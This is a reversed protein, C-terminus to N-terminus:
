ERGRGEFKWIDAAKRALERSRKEIVAPTWEDYQEALTRAMLVASDKFARKKAAFNRNFNTGTRNEGKSIVLLNGTRYVWDEGDVDSDKFGTWDEWHVESKPLIHEVTCRSDRLADSGPQSRANIGFLYRLARKDRFEIEAMRQIFNKNNCVKWEDNLKLEGLIDLSSLDTSNLVAQASDAFAAEFRSPEFKPAIFATRIVFSTLNGLSRTVLGGVKRKNEEDTEDMFRHLLAFVLPHSVTYEKLEGLLVSLKRKGSIKPLPRELIKSARASKVVRFLEISEKRGLCAVLDFVHGSPNNRGSAKEIALRSERYVRTKKLYGYRCQLFCRYYDPVWSPSRLVVAIRELNDHVTERRTADDTESFYSYLRNRILDIDDLPKGRANLAEFVSNSDIDTPIDLVSVEVKQMLFDFFSERAPKNMKEVFTDIVNWAVTLLGNTGIDHGHVIQRYKSKDNKPPEIKPTYRSSDALQSTENDPREFLARLALNERSRDYPRKQAFRRCFAAILLSLTILRQQGDNIRYPKANTPKVLMISGIFYCTKSTDLADKLDYLLDRVQEEKWDYYRQHWPVEFRGLYLVDSVLHVESTIKTKTVRDRWCTLLRRYRSATTSHKAPM